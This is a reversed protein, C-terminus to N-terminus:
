DDNFEILKQIRKCTLYLIQPFPSGFSWRFALILNVQVHHLSSSLVSCSFWNSDCYNQIWSIFVCSELLRFPALLQFFCSCHFKFFTIFLQIVLRSRVFSSCKGRIIMWGISNWALLASYIQLQPGKEAHLLRRWCGLVVVFRPSMFPLSSKM